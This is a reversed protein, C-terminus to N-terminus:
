KQALREYIEEEQQTQWIAAKSFYVEDINNAQHVGLKVAKFAVEDRVLQRLPHNLLDEAQQRIQNTKEADVVKNNLYVRGSDDVSVISHAPIARLKDLLATTCLTRNETSFKTNRMLWIVLKTVINGFM